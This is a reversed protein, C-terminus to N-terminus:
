ANLSYVVTQMEERLKYYLALCIIHNSHIGANVWSTRRLPAPPTYADVIDEKDTNIESVSSMNEPVSYESEEGQQDLAIEYHEEESSTDSYFALYM